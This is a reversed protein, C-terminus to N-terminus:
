FGAAATIYLLSSAEAQRYVSTCAKVNMSHLATCASRLNFMVYIFYITVAICASPPNFM